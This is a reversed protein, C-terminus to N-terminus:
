GDARQDMEPLRGAGDRVSVSVSVCECLGGQGGDGWGLDIGRPGEVPRRLSEGNCDREPSIAGSRVTRIARKELSSSTYM